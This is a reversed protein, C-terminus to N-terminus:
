MLVDYDTLVLREMDIFALAALCEGEWWQLSRKGTLKTFIDVLIQYMTTNRALSM